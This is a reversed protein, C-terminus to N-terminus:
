RIVRQVNTKWPTVTVNSHSPLLNPFADLLNPDNRRNPHRRRFVRNEGSLRDSMATDRDHFDRHGYGSCDIDNGFQSPIVGFHDGAGAGNKFQIGGPAAAVGPCLEQGAGSEIELYDFESELVVQGYKWAGEGRCLHDGCPPGTWIEYLDKWTGGDAARMVDTSQLPWK